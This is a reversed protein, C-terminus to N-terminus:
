PQVRRPSASALASAETGSEVMATWRDVSDPQVQDRDVSGVQRVTGPGHQYLVKARGFPGSPPVIVYGPGASIDQASFNEPQLYQRMGGVAMGHGPFLAVDQVSPHASGIYPHTHVTEDTAVYDFDDLAVFLCGFHSDSTTVPLRWGTGARAKMLRGCVEVGHERTYATLSAGVRQVFADKSEGALSTWVGVALSPAVAPAGPNAIVQAASADMGATALALGLLAANFGRRLSWPRRGVSGAWDWKSM